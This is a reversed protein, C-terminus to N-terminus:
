GVANGRKVFGALLDADNKRRCRREICGTQHGLEDRPEILRIVVAPQVWQEHDANKGDHKEFNM